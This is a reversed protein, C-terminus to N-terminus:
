LELLSICRRSHAQAYQMTRYAGGSKREVAFIVLDSRDAMCRNRQTIAAKFHANASEECIEVADYYAELEKAHDRYEAKMYPLVLILSSNELSLAKTVRRIVSAALLDFDGDRGVLFEVYEQETLLKRILQELNKEITFPDDMTRHGFLSVTYIKM